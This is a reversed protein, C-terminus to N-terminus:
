PTAAPPCPEAEEQPPTEPPTEDRAIAVILDLRDRIEGVLRDVEDYVRGTDPAV